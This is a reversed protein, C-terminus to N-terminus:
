LGFIQRNANPSVITAPDMPAVYYTSNKYDAFLTDSAKQNLYEKLKAIYSEGSRETSQHMWGLQAAPGNSANAVPSDPMRQLLVTFGNSSIRIPLTECATKITLNAVAKKILQIAIKEEEGPEAKDRLYDFFDDGISVRIYQDEVQRALPRMSEFTRYPQFIPFYNNFEAGTKFIGEYAVPPQWSYFTAYEFLHQLLDELAACGKDALTEKVELYAWRPSSQSNSAVINTLGKDSIQTQINALDLWYAMPAEVRKCLVILDAYDSGEIGNETEITDFLEAGLAPILFHMDAATMDALMINDNTQNIRVGAAIVEEVTSILAM